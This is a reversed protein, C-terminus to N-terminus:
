ISQQVQVPVPQGDLVQFLETLPTGLGGSMRFITMCDTYLGGGTRQALTDRIRYTHGHCLGMQCREEVLFAERHNVKQPSPQM